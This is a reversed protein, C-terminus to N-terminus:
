AAVEPTAADQTAMLTALQYDADEVLFDKVIANVLRPVNFMLTGIDGVHRGYSVVAGYSFAHINHLFPAAGPQAEEFTFGSGIYPYRGLEDNRETEPPTYRDSWRAILHAFPELEERLIPDIRYGTGAIVFDTEFRGNEAEIFIRDNESTVKKWTASFHTRFNTFRSAREVTHHPVNGKARAHRVYSWRHAHPLSHFHASAGFHDNIPVPKPFNITPQRSFLQVESAGAELATAAADFASSAAGLVAVRRGALSKYDYPLHTHIYQDSRLGSTIVDPIHPAGLGDIGTALVVKRTLTTKVADGKVFTLNLYSGKPIIKILRYGYQPNVGVRERYWELYDAWALTPIRDIKSFSGEGNIGDFWIEFSLHKYPGEPGSITKLTRLTRMRATTRWIGAKGPQAADFVDVRPIGAARLASAIAIGSQGAGVVVVDAEASSPKMWSGSAESNLVTM